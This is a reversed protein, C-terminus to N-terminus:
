RSADLTAQRSAHSCQGARNFPWAHWDAHQRSHAFITFLFLQEAHLFLQPFIDRICGAPCTTGPNKSNVAGGAIDRWRRPGATHPADFTHGCHDPRGLGMVVVQGAATQQRHGALGAVAFGYNGFRQVLAAPPSNPTAVGVCDGATFVLHRPQGPSSPGLPCHHPEANHWRKCVAGNICM